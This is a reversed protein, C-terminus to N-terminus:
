EAGAVYVIETGPEGIRWIAPLVRHACSLRDPAGPRVLEERCIDAAEPQHDLPRPALVGVRIVDLAGPETLDNLHYDSPYLTGDPLQGVPRLWGGGDTRLGAVCRGGHNRSNALCVIDYSDSLEDIFARGAVGTAGTLLLTPKDTRPQSIGMHTDGESRRITLPAGRLDGALPGAMRARSLPHFGLGHTCAALYAVDDASIYLLGGLLRATERNLIAYYHASSEWSMGGILGITKMGSTDGPISIM